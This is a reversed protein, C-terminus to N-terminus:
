RLLWLGSQGRNGIAGNNYCRGPRDAGARAVVFYDDARGCERLEVVLLRRGKDMGIRRVQRWVVCVGRCTGEKAVMSGDDVRISQAPFSDAFSPDQISPKDFGFIFM